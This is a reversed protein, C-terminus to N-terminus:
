ITVTYLVVSKRDRPLLKCIETWYNVMKEEVSSDSQRLTVFLNVLFARYQKPSLSIRGNKWWSTSANMLVDTQLQKKKELYFDVTLIEFVM